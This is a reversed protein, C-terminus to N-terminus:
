LRLREGEASDRVCRAQRGTTMAWEAGLSGNPPATRCSRGTQRRGAVLRQATSGLATTRESDPRHRARSCGVAEGSGASRRADGPCGLGLMLRTAMSCNGGKRAGRQLAEFRVELRGAHHLPELTKLSPAGVVIAGDRWDEGGGVELAGGQTVGAM